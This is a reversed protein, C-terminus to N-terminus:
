RPPAAPQPRDRTATETPAQEGEAPPQGHARALAIEADSTVPTSILVEVHGARDAVQVQANPVLTPDNPTLDAPEGQLAWRARHCAIDQRVWDATMGPVPKFIVWVGHLQAGEYHPVIESIADRHAFVSHEREEPSIGECASIEAKLLQQAGARDARAAERERAALFQHHMMSEEAADFCPTWQTLPRGGSQIQDMLVTDGCNYEGPQFRQSEREAAIGEEYEAYREHARADAQRESWSRNDPPVPFSQAGCGVLAAVSAALVPNRM